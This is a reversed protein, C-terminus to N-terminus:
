LDFPHHLQYLVGWALFCFWLAALLLWSREWWAAVLAFVLGVVPSLFIGYILVPAMWDPFSIAGNSIALVLLPVACGFSLAGFITGLSSRQVELTAEQM